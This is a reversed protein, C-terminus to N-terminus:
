EKGLNKKGANVDQPGVDRTDGTSGGGDGGFLLKLNESVWEIKKKRYATPMREVEKESMRGFFTLFDKERHLPWHHQGTLGFFTQTCM